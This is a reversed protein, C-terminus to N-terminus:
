ITPSGLSSSSVPQTGRIDADTLSHLFKCCCLTCWRTGYAVFRNLLENLRKLFALTTGSSFLIIGSSRWVFPAVSAFAGGQLRGSFGPVAFADQQHCNSQIADSPMGRLCRSLTCCCRFRATADRHAPRMAEIVIQGNAIHEDCCM